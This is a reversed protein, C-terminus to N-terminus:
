VGIIGLVRLGLFGNVLAFGVVLLGAAKFFVGRYRRQALNLSGFSLLALVPLTGLAFVLMTLAGTLFSGSGLAAVQMAQTFGCPLFFTAAGLFLPAGRTAGRMRSFWAHPMTPVRVGPVELLQLGLLLMVGSVVVGLVASGYVGLRVVGGLVGLLGGLLAFGVLRGMHFLTQERYGGGARGETAALSLVFGGVVALCTSVSAVLGVLLATILSSGRGALLSAVGLRDLALFGGIVLLVAPVAILWERVTSTGGGRTGQEASLAYGQAAVLPTFLAALEASSEGRSTRFTVTGDALMVRVDEMGAETLADGVLITCAACHMGSVYLTHKTPPLTHPASNTTNM